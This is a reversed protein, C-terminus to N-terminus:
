RGSIPDVIRPQDVIAQQESELSRHGLVLQTQQTLPSKRGPVGLGPAAFQAECQGRAETPVLQAPDLDIGVLADGVRDAKKEALEVFQATRALDEEPRDLGGHLQRDKSLTRM